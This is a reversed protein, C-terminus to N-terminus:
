DMLLSEGGKISGYAQHLELDIGYYISRVSGDGLAANWNTSHASGFDHCANCNGVHDRVPLRAAFRVTSSAGTYQDVWGFAPSRDGLDHGSEYHNSNMSKEGIMYTNSLGDKVDRLRTERGMRWFGENKLRIWFGDSSVEASGGSMAYDNRAAYGGFRTRYSGTLPYPDASRRTVCHLGSVTSSIANQIDDDLEGRASGLEGWDEALETQEMFLMAKSLWNWGRMSAVRRQTPYRVLSMYNEGAYGPLVKFASSYSHCALALQKLNNRCQVQRAAERAAQVAPLLLAILIGIITIIVLLEVLTFGFRRSSKPNNSSCNM